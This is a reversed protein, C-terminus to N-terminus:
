SQNIIKIATDDIEKVRKARDINLVKEISRLQRARQFLASKVIDIEKNTLDIKM